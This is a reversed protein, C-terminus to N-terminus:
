NPYGSLCRRNSCARSATAVSADDTAVPEAPLSAQYAAIVEDTWTANAIAVV